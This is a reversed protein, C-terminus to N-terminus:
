CFFLSPLLSSESRIQNPVLKTEKQKRPKEKDPIDMNKFNRNKERLSGGFGASYELSRGSIVERPPFSFFALVFFVLHVLPVFLSIVRM